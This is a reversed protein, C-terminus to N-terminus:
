LWCFVAVSCYYRWGRPEFTRVQGSLSDADLTAEILQGPCDIPPLSAKAQDTVARSVCLLRPTRLQPCLLATQASRLTSQWNQVSRLQKHLSFCLRQGAQRNHIPRALLLLHQQFKDACRQALSSLMCIQQLRLQYQLKSAGPKCLRKDLDSYSRVYRHM